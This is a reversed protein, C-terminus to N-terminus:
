GLLAMLTLGKGQVYIRHRYRDLYWEPNRHQRIMRIGRANEYHEDTSYPGYLKSLQARVKQVDAKYWTGNSRRLQVFYEYEEGLAHRKTTKRWKM